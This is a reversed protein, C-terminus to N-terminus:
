RVGFMENWVGQSVRPWHDQRLSCVLLGGLGSPTGWYPPTSIREFFAGCLFKKQPTDLLWPASVLPDHVPNEDHEHRSLGIPVCAVWVHRQLLAGISNLKEVTWTKLQEVTRPSIIALKLIELDQGWRSKRLFCGSRHDWPRPLSRITIYCFFVIGVVYAVGTHTLM